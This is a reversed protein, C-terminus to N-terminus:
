QRCPQGAEYLKLLERNRAALGAQGAAEALAIAKQATARAEEFRGAEASAAALTGVLLAQQYQTLECVRQACRVAEAGDRVQADRATALLWALNNLVEPLDPQLRLAERYHTAAEAPKGQGAAAVGLEAEAQAAPLASMGTPKSGAGDSASLFTPAGTPAGADSSQALALRYGTYADAYNPDLQLAESFHQLAEAPQHQALLAQGWSTPIAPNRPDAAMAAEYHERAANWDGMVALVRGLDAHALSGGPALRVAQLLQNTSEQWRGLRALVCGLNEHAQASGPELRVAAQYHERAAELQGCQELAFGYNHEATANGTTVALARAWLGLSNRWYGAQVWTLYACLLLVAFPLIFSSLHIIFSPAPPPGDFTSRRVDFASSNAKAEGGAVRGVGPELNSTRLEINSTRREATSTRGMRCWEAVAWVVAVFIGIAPIYTYRDALAQRGVQVLGIVPVLSGLFWFWGVALWPQRRILALALLTCLLLVVLAGAVQWAAWHSPLPYLPALDVPWFLKGLYRVYAVPVNALRLGWPVKEASILNHGARVGFFTIACSALALAFFPLKELLLPLFSRFRHDAGSTRTRTTTRTTTSPKQPPTSSSSSGAAAQPDGVEDNMMRWEANRGLPWYDLLLLVFPLTVVMPKSMLGCAFFVLTLLYWKLASGCLFASSRPSLCDEADRQTDERRQTSDAGPSSPRVNFMSRRVDFTSRRVKFRSGAVQLRCGQAESESSRCEDNMRRCESYRVYAWLTLMFFCGSLLEKREAIWAVSEVHMPHLGFLAAVMASCWFASPMRILAFVCLRLSGFVGSKVEKVGKVREEGEGEDEADRRRQTKANFGHAEAKRTMRELVVFLLLTNVIHIGLSVLHHRGANLGFLQCDLMHSLWTLPHWYEFWATSLAWGVGKWTLGALVYPNKLIMWVDDYNTFEFGAVRGYAALIAAALALCVLATRHAACFTKLGGANM